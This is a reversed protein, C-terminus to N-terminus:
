PEQTLPVLLLLLSPPPLPAPLLPALPMNSSYQVLGHAISSNCDLIGPRNKIM